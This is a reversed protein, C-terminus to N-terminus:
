RFSAPKNIKLSSSAYATPLRMGFGGFSSYGSRLRGQTAAPDDFSWHLIQSAGPWTPCSEKARDCVTVVYEFHQGAFEDMKKSRQQSIDIGIEKMVQVALPNLGVPHTGATAVKFRNGAVHRLIGEAMQSRCSNGTCLFLVRQKM